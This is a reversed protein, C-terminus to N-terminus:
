GLAFYFACERTCLWDVRMEKGLCGSKVTTQLSDPKRCLKGKVGASEEWKWDPGHISCSKPLAKIEKNKKFFHNKSMRALILLWIIYKILIIEFCIILCMYSKM